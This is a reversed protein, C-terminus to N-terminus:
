WAADPRSALYRQLNAYVEAASTAVGEFDSDREQTSAYALTQTFTTRSGTQELTTTVIVQLPSFDYSEAHVIRHPPDVTTYAGRVEIRTGRPRQFVYRFSGGVRLDVECAVLSVRSPTLWRVLHRVQTLADFVVQRPAAFTQTLVIERDSPKTAQLPREQQAPQAAVHGSVHLLLLASLSSCTLIRGGIPVM